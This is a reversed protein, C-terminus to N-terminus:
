RKIFWLITLIIVIQYILGWPLKGSKHMINTHFKELSNILPFPRFQFFLAPFELLDPLIGLIIAGWLWPLFPKGKQFLFFVLGFAIILDIVTELFAIRRTKLGKTMGSGTDWHPILDFIYHFVLVLPMGIYPSPSETIILASVLSHTTALM